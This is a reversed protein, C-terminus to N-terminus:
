PSQIKKTCFKQILQAYIDVTDLTFFFLCFEFRRLLQDLYDLYMVKTTRSEM